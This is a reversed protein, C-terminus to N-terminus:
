CYSLFFFGFFGFFLFGGACRSSSQRRKFFGRYHLTWVGYRTLDPLTQKWAAHVLEILDVNQKPDVMTDLRELCETSPLSVLYTGRLFLQRHWLGVWGSGAALANVHLRMALSLMQLTSDVDRTASSDLFDEYLYKVFLRFTESSIKTDKMQTSSHLLRPCRVLLVAAHVKFPKANWSLQVDALDTM